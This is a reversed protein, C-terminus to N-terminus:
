AEVYYGCPTSITIRDFSLVKYASDYYTAMMNRASAPTLELTKAVHNSATLNFAEVNHWLKFDLFEQLPMSFQSYKMCKPVNLKDKYFFGDFQIHKIGDKEFIQYFEKQYAPVILAFSHRLGRDDLCKSYVECDLMQSTFAYSFGNEEALKASVYEGEVSILGRETQKQM